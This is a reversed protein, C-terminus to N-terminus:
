GQHTAITKAADRLASIAAKQTQTLVEAPPDSADFEAVLLMWPWLGFARAIKDIQVTTPAHQMHLIRGVTRQDINARKAVAAQTRLEQHSAMLKALNAAL